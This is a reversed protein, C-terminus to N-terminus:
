NTFVALSGDAAVGIAIVEEASSDNAALWAGLAVNSNLAVRLEDIEDANDNLALDLAAANDANIWGSIDYTAGEIESLSALSTETWHSSEILSIVVGLEDDSTLSASASANATLSSATSDIAELDDHGLSATADFDTAVGLSLGGEGSSASASGGLSVGVGIDLALTPTSLVCLCTLAAALTQTKMIIAGNCNRRPAERIRGSVNMLDNDPM